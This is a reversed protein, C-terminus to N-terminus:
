HFLSYSTKKTKDFWEKVSDELPPIGIERQLTLECHQKQSIWVLPSELNVDTYALSWRKGLLSASSRTLRHPTPVTCIYM